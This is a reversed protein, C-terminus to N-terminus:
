LVRRVRAPVDRDGLLLVKESGCKMLMGRAKVKRSSYLLWSFIGEYSVVKDVGSKAEVESPYVLAGYQNPNLEVEGEFPGLKTCVDKCYGKPRPDVFSISYKLGRYVGRLKVSYLERVEEAELGYNEAAEVLWQRDVEGGEFSELVEFAKRQGYVVLDLDSGEHQIGLMYSGGVGLGESGLLQILELAAQSLADWRVLNRLAELPRFAKVVESLRVVPFSVGYCPEFLFEQSLKLVNHVGYRKLAREYGRWLGKGTYVYKLYAFRYGPPNYNTFVVYVMGERTLLADKDLTQLGEKLAIM